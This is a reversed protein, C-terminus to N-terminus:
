KEDNEMMNVLIQSSKLIEKNKSIMKKWNSKFFLNTSVDELHIVRINPSYITRLGMKEAEYFLIDEEYYMFTSPNFCYNRKKLFGNAFIYCAGHLVVSEQESSFDTFSKPKKKFFLIKKIVGKIRQRLFILYNYRKLSSQYQKLENLSQGRSRSPNQHFKEKIAYIDPGLIDFKTRKEINRVEDLFDVQEIIVDNNLVIIFDPNYRIAYNYGLNNGKAFGLNESSLLVDVLSNDEYFRSLEEGSNNPSANDVVVIKISKDKSISLLSTIAEKTTETAIFHLIVFVFEVPKM